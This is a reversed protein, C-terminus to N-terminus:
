AAESPTGGGETKFREVVALVAQIIVNSDHEALARSLSEAISKHDSAIHVEPRLAETIRRKALEEQGVLCKAYTSLLVDVGHGAWEAVQTSPVGANLWTSLCAHRLDYIRKALPSKQEEPTLVSKRAKVWSRRYTTASLEDSRLGTFLLGGPGTGFKELHTRLLAVLDPCIPVTRTTKKPRHKLQRRERRDGDDTWESGAEPSATEFEMEGWGDSGPADKWCQSEEDWTRPPLKLNTERLSIAEEPRLGAYYM